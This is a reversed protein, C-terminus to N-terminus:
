EILVWDCSFSASLHKDLIGSWCCTLLIRYLIYFFCTVSSSVYSTIVPWVITVESNVVRLENTTVLGRNDYFELLFYDQYREVHIFIGSSFKIGFSSPLTGAPHLPGARRDQRKPTCKKYACGSFIYMYKKVTM